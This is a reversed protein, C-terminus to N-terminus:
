NNARVALVDCKAGHLVANTTSGLLLSVGHRGHSGILILDVDNNDAFGHITTKPSGELTHCDEAPIGFERGLDAMQRQSANLSQKELSSIEVAGVPAFYLIPEVVHLLSIKAGNPEAVAKAKAVLPSSEVSIDVPVLIHNYISM